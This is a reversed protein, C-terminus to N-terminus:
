ECRKSRFIWAVESLEEFNSRKRPPDDSPQCRWIAGTHSSRATISVQYLRSTLRGAAVFPGGRSWKCSAQAKNDTGSHVCLRTRLEIVLQLLPGRWGCGGMAINLSSLASFLSCAVLASLSYRSTDSLQPKSSAVSTGDDAFPGYRDNADTAAFTQESGM